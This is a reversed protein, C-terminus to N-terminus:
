VAFGQRWRLVQQAAQVGQEYAEEFISYGAWDSHAFAIRPLVPQPEQTFNRGAVPVRMAHGYRTLTCAQLHESLDPLAPRLDGLTALLTERWSRQLLQRRHAPDTGHAQYHTLITPGGRPDTHQHHAHVYGLGSAGYLVNDWALQAALPEHMREEHCAGQGYQARWAMSPTQDLLLNSVTWASYAMGEITKLLPTPPNQLVREIVFGPLACIVRPSWYREMRAEASHWVQVSVGHREPEIRQVLRHLRLREPGTRLLAQALAQTLYANGQPWVLPPHHDDLPDLQTGEPASFGHRAAFYHVGAFASVTEIGAGYEDHCCYDLYWRLHADHLGLAALHQAMSVAHLAQVESPAAGRATAKRLPIQFAGSKQWGKIHASFSQYQDLTAHSVGSVPLLGEQWHGRFFLREQPSHCVFREDYRWRGSVRQRLGLDELLEQVHRASETPVPLYHAGLPHALGSMHASRSNGGAESAMDIVRLDSVGKLLLARAAALGAVGAGLILCECREVRDSAASAADPNLRELPADRLRHGIAHLEHGYGSGAAELRLWDQPSLGAQAGRDTCAQLAPLALGTAAWAATWKLSDRRQRNMSAM